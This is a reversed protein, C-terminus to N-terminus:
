VLLIYGRMDQFFPNILAFEHLTLILKLVVALSVILPILSGFDYEILTIYPEFTKVNHM